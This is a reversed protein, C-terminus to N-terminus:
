SAGIIPYRRVPQAISVVRPSAREDERVRPRSPFADANDLESAKEAMGILGFVYIGFGTVYDFGNDTAIYILYAVLTGVAALAYTSTEPVRARRYIRVLRWVYALAALAFLTLGLAGVESLLRVYESHIVGIGGGSQSYYYNQTAGLGSGLLPSPEFFRSLVTEWAKSRGSTHLHGMVVSPDDLVTGLTIQDAGYFMRQKFTESFLFLTPLGVLGLLPLAFRPLGKFRMFLIVACGVCLAAITIRTFAALIAAGLVAVLILHRVRNGHKASALALLTVVVLFASFLSPGVGPLTLGVTSVSVGALRVVVAAAVLFAGVGLILRAMIKLQAHTSVMLVILLLFFFPASVKAFMRSGYALSPAWLLAAACFVLFLAHFRFASLYRPLRELHWLVVVCSALWLGLLRIASLDMKGFAGSLMGDQGLTLPLAGVILSVYALGVPSFLALAFQAGILGMVLLAIM